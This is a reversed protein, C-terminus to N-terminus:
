PRCFKWTGAAADGRGARPVDARRFYGLTCDVVVGQPQLHELCEAVMIPVHTGAPTGGKELVRSITAADGSREKHRDAFNRPYRGAYRKRRTRPASSAADVGDAVGASAAVDGGDSGVADARRRQRGLRLPATDSRPSFSTALAACLLVARHHGTM